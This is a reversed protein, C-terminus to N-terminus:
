WWKKLGRAGVRQPTRGTREELAVLVPEVLTESLRLVIFQDENRTRLSIWERELAIGLAALAGGRVRVVPAPGDPSNWMPDQGRSYTVLLVDNYSVSHLPNQADDSPVVSIRGDALLLQASRERQQVGAGILATAEFVVAPFRTSGPIATMLPTAPRHMVIYALVALAAAIAFWSRIWPSPGRHLVITADPKSTAPHGAGATRLNGSPSVPGTAVADDREALAFAKALDIATMLGTARGVAERFEEATQFRDAASKALAREAISQCWDPLDDRYVRLPTPAGSMQKQLMTVANDAQFPLAGTLLRYFIVGVSYCDARRDVENGLVQEPAMYAPTGMMGGGLTMRETGAMRAIGFDMIKVSGVDTVMVNAPKVDRHVIGAHHAHELASLIKDILYAARDPPLPGLRNSLRELTEGRVFEMVMLLDADSHVLEYISAIEPHNLKALITAEARFRRMIEADVLEPNLVKIAVERDLTEDVARYVVGTTGRGLPGLIRYKGITKGTMDLASNEPLNDTSRSARRLPPNARTM